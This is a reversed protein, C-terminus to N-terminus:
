EWVCGWVGQGLLSRAAERLLEAGEEESWPGRGTEWAWFTGKNPVHPEEQPRKQRGLGGAEELLWHMESESLRDMQKHAGGPHWVWPRLAPFTGFRM